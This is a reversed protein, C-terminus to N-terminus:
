IGTTLGRVAVVLLTAMSASGLVSRWRQLHGIVIECGYFLVISFTIFRLTAEIATGHSGIGGFALLALLAFAILYDTPTAGFRQDSVFRVFIGLAVALLIIIAGFGQLLGSDTGAPYTTLLYTAFAVTIYAVVRLAFGEWARYAALVLASLLVAFGACMGFDRPVESSRFVAFLMLLSVTAAIIWVFAAQM